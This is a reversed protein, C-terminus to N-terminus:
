DATPTADAPPLTAPEAPLATHLETEGHKSSPLATLLDTRKEGSPTQYSAMLQQGQALETSQLLYARVEAPPKVFGAKQLEKRVAPPLSKTYMAVQAMQDKGLTFIPSMMNPDWVVALVFTGTNEPAAVGAVEFRHENSSAGMHLKVLRRTSPHFMEIAESQLWQSTMPPVYRQVTPRQDDYNNYLVERRVFDPQFMRKAEPDLKARFLMVAGPLMLPILVALFILNNRTDRRM